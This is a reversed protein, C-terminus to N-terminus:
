PSQRRRRPSNERGPSQRGMLRSSKDGRSTTRAARATTALRATACRSQRASARSRRWACLNTHRPPIACSPTLYRAMKGTHEVGMREYVQNVIYKMAALQTVPIRALDELYAWVRADLDELPYAFNILGIRAAEKGSISRGTLAYHEAKALGLRYVWMGTLHCGWVRGYPTGFQADESAIVIDGLLAYESGGGVCWGHVKVVVPKPSRWISMFKQTPANWPNLCMLMDLGPDYEGPKVSIGYGDFHELGESFDFGACFSKGAGQLLIVRVDRDVCAAGIAAEVEDPMPPRITNFKEPRNLTIVAVRDRKEYVITEYTM